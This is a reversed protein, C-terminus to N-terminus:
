SHLNRLAVDINCLAVIGGPRSRTKLCGSLFFRGTLGVLISLLRRRQFGANTKTSTPITQNGAAAAEKQGARRRDLERLDITRFQGAWSQLNLKDKKVIYFTGIAFGVFVSSHAL